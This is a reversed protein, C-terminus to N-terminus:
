WLPRTSVEVVMFDGSQDAVMFASQGTGFFESIEAVIAALTDARREARGLVFTINSLVELQETRRRSEEYTWAKDLVEAVQNAFAAMMEVHQSSYAGVELSGMSLFGIFRQGALLPAGLWGRVPGIDTWTSFREDMQADEVIIPRGSSQFEAVLPHDQSALEITRGTEAGPPTIALKSEESLFLGVRDYDILNHLNILIIELAQQIDAAGALAALIDRMVAEVQEQRDHPLLLILAAAKGEYHTPSIYVDITHEPIPIRDLRVELKSVPIEAKLVAQIATKVQESDGVHIWSFFDIELKSAMEEPALGLLAAADPNSFALGGDQYILVGYHQIKNM